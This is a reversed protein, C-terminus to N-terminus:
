RDSKSDADPRDVLPKGAHTDDEFLCGSSMSWRRSAVRGAQDEQHTVWIYAREKASDRYWQGVLTEVAKTTQEDLASTPEDLLLVSPELQMAALLAIIQAEGGSLDVHSRRLLSENRGVLELQDVVKTRDFSKDGHAALRLLMWLVDETMGDFRAPQQRVYVVNSRYKTAEATAVIRKRWLLEGSDVPDLMALTRLLVSKGSGSPGSLAVRDKTHLSFSVGDLLTGHSSTSRLSHASLLENM